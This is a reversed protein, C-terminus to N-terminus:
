SRILAVRAKVDEAGITTGIEGNRLLSSLRAVSEEEPLIDGSM